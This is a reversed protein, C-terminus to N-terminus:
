AGRTRAEHTGGAVRPGAAAVRLPGLGGRHGDRSGLLATRGDPTVALNEGSSQGAFTQVIAGSALDWVRLTGELSAGVVRRGDPTFAVSVIWAQAPLPTLARRRGTTLDLVALSASPNAPNPSNRALAAFRGDPSIAFPGGIAFRRKIRGSRREM